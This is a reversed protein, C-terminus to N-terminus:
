QSICDVIEDTYGYCYKKLIKNDHDRVVSLRNKSDYQYYINRGRADTENLVGVLPKHVYTTVFCNPLQHLKNLESKIAAESSQLSNLVNLDIGSLAIAESYSKGVIRAVPHQGGYGWIISIPIGDRDSYQRLKFQDISNLEGYLQFVQGVELANSGVAKSISQLKWTGAHSYGGTFFYNNQVKQIPFVSSSTTLETTAEIVPTIMVDAMQLLSPFDYPYKYTTKYTKNRSDTFQVTSLQNRTDYTFYKKSTLSYGESFEKTATSGLLTVNGSIPYAGVSYVPTKIIANGSISLPFCDVQQIAAVRGYVCVEPTSFFYNEVEKLPVGNSNYFIKKKVLGNALAAKRAPYLFNLPNLANPDGSSPLLSPDLVGVDPTNTYEEVVKGVAHDVIGSEGVYADSEEVVDYGIYSGSANTSPTYHSAASVTSKIILYKYEDYYPSVGFGPNFIQGHEYEFANKTLYILPSMLKGGSYKYLKILPPSSFSETTTQAIRLGGGKSVAYASNQLYKFSAQANAGLSGNTQPGFTDALYAQVIYIYDPLIEITKGEVLKFTEYKQTVNDFEFSLLKNDSVVNNIRTGLQNFPTSYYIPWFTAPTNVLALNEPTKKLLTLRIFASNPNTTGSLPGFTNISFSGDYLFSPLDAYFVQALTNGYNNRDNLFVESIASFDDHSVKYNDFTNLEHDFSTSGGTPYKIKKLVCAKTSNVDSNRNNRIGSLSSRIANMWLNPFFSVNSTKGNYYGWYDTAYSTKKPLKETYYEFEYSPKDYEKLSTLKLRQSAENVQKGTSYGSYNLYLDFNNGATNAEFYDYSLHASKILENKKNRVEISNLKHSGVLDIRNASSNFNVKGSPFDISQLYAFHQKSYNITVFTQISPFFEGIPPEVNGQTNLYIPICQHSVGSASVSPFNEIPGTTIYNFTLVEADPTIVSTVQYTRSTVQGLINPFIRPPTADAGYAINSITTEEKVEFIFKMGDPMSIRFVYPKGSGDYGPSEIKINPDTLSKFKENKWDLVFEGRYGAISFKFNDPDVDKTGDVLAHNAVFNLAGNKPPWVAPQGNTQVRFNLTTCYNLISSPMGPSLNVLPELENDRNKFIGFDDFGNVIQVISGGANLTWGLGTWGAEESVRFGNSHYTFFIPLSFAGTNIEYFPITLEPAGTYKSVPVDLYKIMEFAKPSVPSVTPLLTNASVSQTHAKWSNLFIIIIAITTILKLMIHKNPAINVHSM